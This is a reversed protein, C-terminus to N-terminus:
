FRGLQEFNNLGIPPNSLFAKVFCYAFGSDLIFHQCLSPLHLQTLQGFTAAPVFITATM